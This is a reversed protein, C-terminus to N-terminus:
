RRRDSEEIPSEKFEFRAECYPHGDTLRGSFVLNGDGALGALVGEDFSAMVRCTRASYFRDFACRSITIEGDSTGHFDIGIMRYLLRAARMADRRDIVGFLDRFRKGLRLAHNRLAAELERIDRRSEVARTVADEAFKAYSELAEDFSLDHTPPKTRGFAAATSEFVSELGKKKLIVPVYYQSVSYLFKM